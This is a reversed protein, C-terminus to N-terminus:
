ALRMWSVFFNWALLFICCVFISTNQVPLPQASLLLLKCTTPELGSLFATMNVYTQETQTSSNTLFRFVLWHTFCCRIRIIVSWNIARWTEVLFCATVAVQNGKNVDARGVSESSLHHYSVYNSSSDTLTSECTIVITHWNVYNIRVLWFWLAWDLSLSLM